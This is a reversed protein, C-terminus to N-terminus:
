FLNIFFSNSLYKSKIYSETLFIPYIHNAWRNDTGYCVPNRENILNASIMNITDTELGYEKENETVLLKEVKLVGDFPSSCHDAKRIRLYWVAFREEGTYPTQHMIAPTRNFLPLNAIREAMSKKNKLKALAPNFSKSVGIVCRYNNRIKAYEYKDNKKTVKYELSGDKVLFTHENLLNEKVLKAVLEKELEIMRDQIKAISIDKFEKEKNKHSCFMIKDILLKHELLFKANANINNRINEFFCEDDRGDANADQPLVIVNEKLHKFNHMKRNIRCCCGVGIQGAIIPYIKDRYNIDDIKYVRRSGDLFYKFLPVDLLIDKSLNKLDIYTDQHETEGDEAVIIEKEDDYIITSDTDIDISFKKSGYCKGDTEKEIISLIEKM